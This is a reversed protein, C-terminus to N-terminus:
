LVQRKHEILEVPGLGVVMHGFASPQSKRQHLVYDLCDVLPLHKYLAAHAFAAAKAELQSQSILSPGNDVTLQGNCSRPTSDHAWLLQCHVISLPCFILL